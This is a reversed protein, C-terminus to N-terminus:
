DWPREHLARHLGEADEVRVAVPDLGQRHLSRILLEYDLESDEVVLLRLPEGAAATGGTQQVSNTPHM